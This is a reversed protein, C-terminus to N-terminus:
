SRKISIASCTWAIHYVNTTLAAVSKWSFESRASKGANQGLRQRKQKDALLEIIAKSLVKANKSPIVIGTRNHAVMEALSGTNTVIVPKGFAFAMAVIGSQSAEIYPLVVLSAQDFFRPVEENPIFREHLEYHPNSSINARYKELDGGQGAIVIKFDPFEKSVFPEAEILYKLGKYHDIRGFFLITNPKEVFRNKQKTCFSFLCGHPIVFVNHEPKKCNVLLQQKLLRGHVIIKDYGVERIKKLVWIKWPAISSSQKGPHLVVDHVTAVV